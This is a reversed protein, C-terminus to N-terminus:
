ITDGFFFWGVVGIICLTAVLGLIVLTRKLMAREICALLLSVQGARVLSSYTGSDSIRVPNPATGPEARGRM